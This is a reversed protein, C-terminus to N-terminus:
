DAAQQFSKLSVRVVNRQAKMSGLQQELGSLGGCGDLM